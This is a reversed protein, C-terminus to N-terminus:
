SANQESLNPRASSHSTQWLCSYISPRHQTEVRNISDRLTSLIGCCARLRVRVEPELVYEYIMQIEKAFAALTGLPGIKTKSWLSDKAIALPCAPTVIFTPADKCHEVARNQKKVIRPGKTFHKM